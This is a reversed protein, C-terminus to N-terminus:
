PKLTNSENPLYKRDVPSFSRYIGFEILKNDKFSLQISSTIYIFHIPGIFPKMMSEPYLKKRIEDNMKEGAHYTYVMNDDNLHSPNGWKKYIEERTMGLALDGVRINDPIKNSTACIEKLRNSLIDYQSVYILEVADYSVPRAFVVAITNHSAKPKYCLWINEYREFQKAKGFKKIIDQFSHYGIAVGLITTYEPRLKGVWKNSEKHKPTCSILLLLIIAMVETRSLLHSLNRRQM